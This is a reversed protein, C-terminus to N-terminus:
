QELSERLQRMKARVDPPLTKPRAENRVTPAKEIQYINRFRDVAPKPRPAVPQESAAQARSDEEVSLPGRLAALLTIQGATNGILFRKDEVQIVSISRKDGMPITELVKLSKEQAAKRFLQPAFKRTGFVTAWMLAVVIGFGGLVRTLPFDAALSPIEAPAAVPPPVVPAAPTAAPAEAGPPAAPQPAQARSSASQSTGAEPDTEQGPLAQPAIPPSLPEAAVPQPVVVAPTASKTRIHRRPSATKPTQAAAPAPVAVASGPATTRAAEVAPVEESAAPGQNSILAGPRAGSDLGWAGCVFLACAALPPMLSKKM